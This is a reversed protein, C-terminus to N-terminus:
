FMRMRRNKISMEILDNLNFLGSFVFGTGTLIKMYMGAYFPIRWYRFLIIPSYIRCDDKTDDPFHCRGIIGESLDSLFGVPYLSFFGTLFV